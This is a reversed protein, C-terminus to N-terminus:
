VRMLNIIVQLQFIIVGILPRFGINKMPSKPAKLQFIIVGILPRFCSQLHHLLHRLRNLQFIIVGILPRFCHYCQLNVVVQIDTSLHYGRYPSPFRHLYVQHTSLHYGRYPSPFPYVLMM